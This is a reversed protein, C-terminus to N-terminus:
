RREFLFINTDYEKFYKGRVSKLFDFGAHDAAELVYNEDHTYAQHSSLSSAGYIDPKKYVTNFVIVGNQKVLNRLSTLIPGLDGFYQMTCVAALVDAEALEFSTIDLGNGVVIDDYVNPRVMSSFAESFDIGILKGVHDMIVEGFLGSGCGFDYAFVDKTLYPNCLELCAQYIPTLTDLNQARYEDAKKTDTYEWVQDLFVTQAPCADHDFFYKHIENAVSVQGAKMSVVVLLSYVVPSFIESQIIFNLFSNFHDDLELDHIFVVFAELLLNRDPFMSVATMIVMGAKDFDGEEYYIRSCAFWSIISQDKNVEVAEAIERLVTQRGLNKGKLYTDLLAEPSTRQKLDFGDDVGITVGWREFNNSIVQGFDSTDLVSVRGDSFENLREEFDNKIRTRLTEFIKFTIVRASKDLFGHAILESVTGGAVNESIIASGTFSVKLIINAEHNLGERFVTHGTVNTVFGFYPHGPFTILKFTPIKDAAITLTMNYKPENNAEVDFNIDDPYFKPVKCYSSLIAKKAFFENEGSCLTLAASEIKIEEILSNHIVEIDYQKLLRLMAEHLGYMGSKFYYVRSDRDQADYTEKMGEYTISEGDPLARIMDYLASPKTGKDLLWWTPYDHVQTGLIPLPTVSFCNETIDEVEVDLNSSLFENINKHPVMLHQARDMKQYLDTDISRWSGGIEDDINFVVVDYGLAKQHAAEFVGLPSASLVAVDYVKM